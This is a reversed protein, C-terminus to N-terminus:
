EGPAPLYPPNAILCSARTDRTGKWFCSNHVQYQEDLGFKQTRQAALAAANAGIEYGHIKCGSPPPSKLLASIVPSGDGAGFEIISDDCDPRGYVVLPLVV